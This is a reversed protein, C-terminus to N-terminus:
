HGVSLCLTSYVHLDIMYVMFYTTNCLIRAAKSENREVM